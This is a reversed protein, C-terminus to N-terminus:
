YKEGSQYYEVGTHIHQVQLLRFVLAIHLFVRCLLSMVRALDSAHFYGEGIAIFNTLTVMM